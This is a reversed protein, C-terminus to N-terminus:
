GQQGTAGGDENGLARKNDAGRRSSENPTSCDSEPQGHAAHSNRSSCCIGDNGNTEGQPCSSRGLGLRQGPRLDGAGGFRSSERKRLL